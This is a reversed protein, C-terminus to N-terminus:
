SLLGTKCVRNQITKCSSIFNSFRNARNELNSILPVAHWIRVGSTYMVRLKVLDIYIININKCKFLKEIFTCEV